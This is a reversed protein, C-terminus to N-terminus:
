SSSALASPEGTRLGESITGGLIVAFAMIVNNWLSATNWPLLLFASIFLWAGLPVLCVLFVSNRWGGILASVMLAIGACLNGCLAATNASFRLVFPSVAIWVGMVVNIINVCAPASLIAHHRESDNM